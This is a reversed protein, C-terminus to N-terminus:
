KRGYVGERIMYENVIDVVYEIQWEAMGPYLPLSLETRCIEDTVPYDKRNWGHKRYAAQMPIPIPYHINVGIGKSELYSKLNDRHKTLVPYVHVVNDNKGSSGNNKMQIRENYINAIRRRELNWEDLYKLKVFLFGAQLEDLRSNYGQYIHKYKEISGYNALMRVKDVIDKNNSVVAGGDGLAGLNKGPYFSFAAADGFAGAKKGNREAGHAQCADEIVFINYKNAIQCISDMDSLKGYLHVSLIAKTRETIKEEIKRVDINFTKEDADVLVPVAGVYSIALITAIFTNAPVIVEDNKGIELAALILRLADLGSGVGVCESVGCYAAFEKEFIECYKGHIFWGSQLIDRYVMDFESKLKRHIINLDLYPVKM